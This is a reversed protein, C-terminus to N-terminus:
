TTHAQTITDLPSVDRKIASIPDSIRRSMITNLNDYQLDEEKLRQVSVEFDAIRGLLDSYTHYFELSGPLDPVAERGALQRHPGNYLLQFQRLRM